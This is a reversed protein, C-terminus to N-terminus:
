QPRKIGEATSAPYDLAILGGVIAAVTKRDMTEENEARQISAESLSPKCMEGFGAQSLKKAERLQRLKQGYVRIGEPRGGRSKPASASTPQPPREPAAEVSRDPSVGAAVENVTHTSKAAQEDVFACLDQLHAQWEPMERLERELEPRLVYSHGNFTVLSAIPRGRRDYGAEGAGTEEAFAGAFRMIEEEARTITWAGQRVCEDAEAAFAFVVRLVYVVMATRDWRPVTFDEPPPQARDRQLERYAEIRAKDIRNSSEHSFEKPYRAM